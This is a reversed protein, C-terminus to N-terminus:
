QNLFPPVCSNCGKKVTRSLLNGWNGTCLSRHGIRVVLISDQYRAYIVCYGGIRFRFLGKFGWFLPEGISPDSGITEEIERIIREATVPDHHNLDRIVSSKFRIPSAM